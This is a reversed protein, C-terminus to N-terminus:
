WSFHGLNNSFYSSLRRFLRHICKM